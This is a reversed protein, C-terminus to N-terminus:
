GSVLEYRVMIATAFSKYQIGSDIVSYYVIDGIRKNVETRDIFIYIPPSIKTQWIQGAIPYPGM